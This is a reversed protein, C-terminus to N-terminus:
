EDRKGMGLVWWILAFLGGLLVIAGLAAGILFIGSFAMEM